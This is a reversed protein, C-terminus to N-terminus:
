EHLKALQRSLQAFELELRKIERTISNKNLEMMYMLKFMGTAIIAWLVGTAWAIMARTSEAQYFQYAFVFALAIFVFPLFFAMLYIWRHRSRFTETVMDLLPREGRLSEVLDSDEQQLAERIKKDIDTM